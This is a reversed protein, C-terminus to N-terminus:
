AVTTRGVRRQRAAAGTAGGVGVMLLVGGAGIAADGWDFGDPSTSSAPQLVVTGSEGSEQSSAGRYIQATASAPVVAAIVVATAALTRAISKLM